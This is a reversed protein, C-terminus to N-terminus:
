GQKFRSLQPLRWKWHGLIRSRTPQIVLPQVGRPFTTCQLIQLSHLCTELEMREFQFPRMPIVAPPCGSKGKHTETHPICMHISHGLGPKMRWSGVLPEEHSGLVRQYGLTALWSAESSGGTSSHCAKPQWQARCEIHPSLKQIWIRSNSHCNCQEDFWRLLGLM